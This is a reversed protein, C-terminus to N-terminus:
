GVSGVKLKTVTLKLTLMNRRIMPVAKSARETYYGQFNDYLNHKGKISREARSNDPSLVSLPVSLPTNRM